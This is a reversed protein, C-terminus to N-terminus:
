TFSYYRLGREFTSKTLTQEAGIQLRQRTKYDIKGRNTTELVQGSKWDGYQGM